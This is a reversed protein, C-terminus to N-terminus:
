SVLPRVGRRGSKRGPRPGVTAGTAVAQLVAAKAGDDLKGGGRAMTLEFRDHARGDVTAVRAGHVDVGAAALAVALAHLLGPEDPADVTARTYWPSSGDDFTVTAAPLPWSARPGTLGEEIAQRLRDADPPRGARARFAEVVGSDPWTAAVADIVDLGAQSLAGTVAALLGPRDRAAVEVRWQGPPSDEVVAVKVQGRGPRPELLAAQRRLAAPDQALLWALPARGLRAVVAPSADRAAEARRREVLNRAEREVGEGPRLVALLLRALEDLRAREGPELEHRALTLLYLARVRDPTGVHAALQVVTDEDLGDPRVAAAWLRGSEGVLLAVEQETAAGLDLRKVLQRALAVPPQDDGATELV